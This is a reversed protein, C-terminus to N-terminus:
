DTGNTVWGLVRRGDQHRGMGCGLPEHPHASEDVGTRATRATATATSADGPRLPPTLQPPQPASGELEQVRTKLSVILDDLEDNFHAWALDFRFRFDDMSEDGYFIGSAKQRNSVHIITMGQGDAHDMGILKSFAWERTKSMGQFVVRQNTLVITGEDVIKQVEPGPQFTGRHGGVRYSVGKAVRFSMGQHGGQYQGKERRTEVLGGTEVIAFPLEGKKLMIPVDDNPFADPDSSVQALELALRTSELEEQWAAFDAQHQVQAQQVQAEYEAQARRAQREVRAHESRERWRQFFGM